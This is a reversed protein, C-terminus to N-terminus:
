FPRQALISKVDRAGHLVAFVVVEGAEVRYAVVYHGVTTFLARKPTLDPRKHGLRPFAALVRFTSRFRAETDLAFRGGFHELVYELIEVLDRNAPTALRYGPM